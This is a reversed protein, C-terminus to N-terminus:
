EKIIRASSRLGGDAYEVLYLGRSLNSLDVATETTGPQASFSAVRAGTTSFVTVRADRSAATHPVSLRNQVPNPYAALNTTALGARTALAAQRSKLTVNRMLFYRGGSSSGVAPYIRVTLTQGAPVTVGTAAALAFTYLDPVSTTTGSTSPLIASNNAIEGPNGSTGVGFSGNETALLPGGARTNTSNNIAPGKGGTVSASDSVFNTLSWAVAVKGAASNFVNANFVVSDFRVAAGTAGVSFQQYFRRRPSGGTGPNPYTTSVTTSWGGGDAVPAIAQGASSYPAFAQNGTGTPLQNNSLVLRRLVPTGPTVNASRVAANDATNTMLPWKVFGATQASATGALGLFGAMLLPFRLNKKM